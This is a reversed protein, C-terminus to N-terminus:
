PHGGGGDAYMIIADAGEFVSNDDVNKGDVQKVPWGNTYVEAKIGPMQNLCKQLLLCGARFEHEGPGHSVRGALLVIKKDAAFATLSLALTTLVIGACHKLKM